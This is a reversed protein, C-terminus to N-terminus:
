TFQFTYRVRGFYWKGARSDSRLRVLISCLNSDCRVLFLSLSLYSLFLTGIITRLRHAITLVTSDAFEQRITSQIKADTEFDVSRYFFLIMLGLILM